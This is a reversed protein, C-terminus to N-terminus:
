CHRQMDKTNNLMTFCAETGKATGNPASNSHIFLIFNCGNEKAYDYNANTDYTRPAIVFPVKGTLQIACLQVLLSTSLNVQKKM